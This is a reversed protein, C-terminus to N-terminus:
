WELTTMNMFSQMNTLRRMQLVLRRVEECLENFIEEKAKKKSLRIVKVAPCRDGLSNFGVSFIRGDVDVPRCREADVEDVDLVNIKM